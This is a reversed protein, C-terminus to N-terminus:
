EMVIFMWSTLFGVLTGQAGVMSVVSIERTPCLKAMGFDSIKPYFDENLLINHSKINFHLICTNCGRHFYELGRAIGLAIRYLKEWGLPPTTTSSNKENYIFRELSGNSMFEYVLARKSGENSFALSMLMTLGALQLSKMSLNKEM